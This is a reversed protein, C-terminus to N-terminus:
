LNGRDNQNTSLHRIIKRRNLFFYRSIGWFFPDCRSLLLDCTLKFCAILAILVDLFMIHVTLFLQITQFLSIAKFFINLKQQPFSSLLTFLQCYRNLCSSCILSCLCIFFKSTLCYLIRDGHRQTTSEFPRSAAM